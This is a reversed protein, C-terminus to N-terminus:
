AAGFLERNGQDFYAQQSAISNRMADTDKFTGSNQVWNKWANFGQELAAKATAPDIQGSKLAPVIVSNRWNTYDDIGASATQKERGKRTFHGIIPGTLAGVAAGIPAFPGTLAAGLTAGGAMGLGAGALGGVIGGPFKSAASGPVQYSPPTFSALANRGVAPTGAAPSAGFAAFANFPQAPAIPAFTPGGGPLGLLERATTAAVQGQSAFPNIYQQWANGSQAQQALQLANLIDTRGQGFGTRLAETGGTYAKQAAESSAKLGAAQARNGAIAGGVSAAIPAAVKAINLFDELFPM